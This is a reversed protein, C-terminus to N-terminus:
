AARVQRLAADEASKAVFADFKEPVVFWQGAHLRLAGAAVLQAKRTKVYWEIATPSRFLEKREERYANLKVWCLVDPQTASQTADM